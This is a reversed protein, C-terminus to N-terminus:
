RSSKATSLPQHVLGKRQMEVSWAKLAAMQLVGCAECSLSDSAYAPEGPQQLLRNTM